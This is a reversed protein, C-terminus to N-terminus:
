QQANQALFQRVMADLKPDNLDTVAVPQDAAATAPVGAISDPVAQKQSIYGALVKSQLGKYLQDAKLLNGGTAYSLNYVNELDEDDYNPNNRIVEAEQRDYESAMALSLQRQEQEARWQRMAQLEQQLEDVRPDRVTDFEDDVEASAQRQVEQSAAADAQALTYGQAQLAASLERHLAMANEPNQLSAVWELAQQAVEAGGYQEIAEYARRQEAVEQTKRRYDALMSDYYPRVDQPLSNPDLRTFTDEAAAETTGEEVQGEEPTAQAVQEQSPPAAAAIKADESTDFGDERAAAQLAAVAEQENM